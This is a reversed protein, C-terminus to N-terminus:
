ATGQPTPAGVRSYTLHAASVDGATRAPLRSEYLPEPRGPFEYQQAYRKLRGELPTRLQVGLSALANGVAQRSVGFHRGIQATSLGREYLRAAEKAQPMKLAHNAPM